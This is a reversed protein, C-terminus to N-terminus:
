ALTAICGGGLAESRESIPAGQPRVGRSAREERSWGGARLLAVGVADAIGISQGFALARDFAVQPRLGGALPHLGVM